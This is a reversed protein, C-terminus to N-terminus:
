AGAMHAELRQLERRPWDAAIGYGHEECWDIIFRWEQAGEILRGQRELLAAASYHMSIGYDDSALTSARQWCALAADPRGTSAYLDGQREILSPDDSVIELGGPDGARGARLRQRRARAAV